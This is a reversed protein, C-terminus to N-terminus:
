ERSKLIEVLSIKKLHRGVMIDVYLYSILIIGLIILYLNLPIFSEFGANVNSIMYPWIVGVIWTSVPLGILTSVLVTYFASGLYLKKVEKENYGFVKILSISFTAKDVMMKLLLYLVLIFIIISVILLMIMLSAMIENFRSASEAIDELTIVSAIASQELDLENAALLINYYDAEQGFVKRMNNIDTFIYLGTTYPVIGKVQYTYTKEEIHDKLDIEDGVEYGYKYAVSNSIYVDDSDGDVKFNFYSNGSQIGLVNIELEKGAMDLYAYLTKSYAEEGDEPVEILPYNLAYMYNFNADNLTHKVYNDITGKLGFSFVMLLIALILGFVITIYGNIERLLQRIRYRNIFGMNGLNVNSIKNQKKEKRLLQLPLLSLKKNIAFFNVIVTILIPVAIGYVILYPKLLLHLEPFSYYKSADELFPILVYGLATGVLSAVSVLIIPLIMYHKMLDNKLFGLSYLAGIVSSEKEINHTVFISIMYAVLLLVIVGAVLASLKNIESDTKVDNIRANDEAQIFYALNGSSPSVGASDINPSMETYQLMSMDRDLSRIYDKFQKNTIGEHLRYSYNYTISKEEDSLSNFAEDAVFAVSFKEPVAVVDFPKKVVFSYDPASGIGSVKYVKKGLNVVDNLKINLSKSYNKDITIENSTVALNGIDLDVTNIFERNKFIRLLSGNGTDIDVYFNEVLTVGFQEIESKQEESYPVFVTFEGDEIHNNVKNTDVTYFISDAAAAMSVVISVSLVVLFFLAGYRYKNEKFERKIRRNIIM